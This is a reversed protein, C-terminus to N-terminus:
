FDKRHFMEHPKYGLRKFIIEHGSDAMGVGVYARQVGWENCLEDNRRFMRMALMGGRYGPQLYYNDIFCHLVRRDHLHGRVLNFIYGALHDGDRVTLIRLVGQLGLSFLADWDPDHQEGREAGHQEFLPPLERAIGYFHEVQLTPGNPTALGSLQLRRLQKRALPKM